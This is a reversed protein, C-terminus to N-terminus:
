PNSMPEILGLPGPTQEVVCKCLEAKMEYRLPDRSWRDEGEQRRGTEADQVCACCTLRITQLSTSFRRAKETDGTHLNRTFGYGM